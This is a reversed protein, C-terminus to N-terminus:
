DDSGRQLARKNERDKIDARKDYLKKGKVVGLEVKVFAGSFYLSLPVLTLGKENVAQRLKLAERKSVLLKRQRMPVHNERNGFDYPFIHLSMLFLEFSNKNPFYAYSDQLNARGARLSKVETGTLVIGAELRQLVFYEHEAKRNSVILKQPREVPAPM